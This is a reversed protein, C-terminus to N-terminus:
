AAQRWASRDSHLTMSTTLCFLSGTSYRRLKCSFNIYNLEPFLTRLLLQSAEYVASSFHGM